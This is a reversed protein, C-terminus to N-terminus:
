KRYYYTEPPFNSRVGAIETWLQDICDLCHNLNAESVSKLNAENVSIQKVCINLDERLRKNEENLRAVTEELTEKQVDSIVQNEEVSMQKICVFIEKILKLNRDCM